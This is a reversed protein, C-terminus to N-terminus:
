LVKPLKVPIGSSSLIICQSLLPLTSIQLWCYPHPAPIPSPCNVGIAISSQSLYKPFIPLIDKKVNMYGARRQSRGQLSTDGSGSDVQSIPNGTRNWIDDHFRKLYQDPDQRADAFARNEEIIDYRSYPTNNDERSGYGFIYRCWELHWKEDKNKPDIDDNPRPFIGTGYHGFLKRSM